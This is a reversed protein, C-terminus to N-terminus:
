ETARLLAVKRRCEETSAGPNYDGIRVALEPFVLKLADRGFLRTRPNDSELMTLVRRLYPRVAEGRAQLNSLALTQVFTWQGQDGKDILATLEANSRKQMRKFIHEEFLMWPVYGAVLGTFAGSIGCSIVGAIGFWRRGFAIGFCVGALLGALRLTGFLVGLGTLPFPLIPARILPNQTSMFRSVARPPHERYYAVISNGILGAGLVWLLGFAWFGMGGPLYPRLVVFLLAMYGVISGFLVLNRTRIPFVLEAPMRGTRCCWGNFIFGALLLVGFPLCILAGLEADSKGRISFKEFDQRALVEGRSTTIAWVTRSNDVLLGYNPDRRRVEEFYPFCQRYRIKAGDSTTLWLRDTPASGRIAPEAVVNTISALKVEHLVTLPPGHLRSYSRLCMLGGYLFFVGLPLALWHFSIRSEGPQEPLDAIRVRFGPM